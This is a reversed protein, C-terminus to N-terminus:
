SSSSLREPPVEIIRCMNCATQACLHGDASTDGLTCARITGHFRRRTNGGPASSRREVELRIHDYDAKPEAKGVRELESTALSDTLCLGTEM